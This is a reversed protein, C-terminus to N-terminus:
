FSKEKNQYAELVEAYTRANWLRSTEGEKEKLLHFIEKLQEPTKAEDIQRLISNPPISQAAKNVRPKVHGTSKAKVIRQFLDAGKKNPNSLKSM